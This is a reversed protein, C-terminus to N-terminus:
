FSAGDPNLDASGPDIYPVTPLDIKDGPEFNESSIVGQFNNPDDIVITSDGSTPDDGPLFMATVDDGVSGGFELTSDQGVLVQGDGSLNGHLVLTGNEAEITGSNDISLSYTPTTLGNDGVPTQGTIDSDILGHGILSGGAEVRLTNAPAGGQGGVELNGGSGIDIGGQASATADAGPQVRALLKLAGGVSVSGGNSVTLTGVGGAYTWDGGTGNPVGAGNLLAPVAGGVTMNAAKLTSGSGDVTVDGMGFDNPSTDTSPGTPQQGITVAGSVNATGATAVTVTGIGTQQAGVVADGNVMVTGADSVDLTGTGGYGVSLYGGVTLQSGQGTITVSSPNTASGSSSDVAVYFRGAQITAGAEVLM